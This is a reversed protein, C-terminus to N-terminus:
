WNMGGVTECEKIMRDDIKYRRQNISVTDNLSLSLFQYFFSMGHLCPPTSTYSRENM